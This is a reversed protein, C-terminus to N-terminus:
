YLPACSAVTYYHSNLNICSTIMNRMSESLWLKETMKQRRMEPTFTQNM